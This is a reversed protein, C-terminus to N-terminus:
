DESYGDVAYVKIADLSGSEPPDRIGVRIALAKLQVGVGGYIPVARSPADVQMAEQCIRWRVFFYAMGVIASRVVPAGFIEGHYSVLLDHEVM